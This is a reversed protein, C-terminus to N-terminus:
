RAGTADDGTLRDAAAGLIEGVTGRLEHPVHEVLDGALEGPSKHVLLKVLGGVLAPVLAALPLPIGGVNIHVPRQTM